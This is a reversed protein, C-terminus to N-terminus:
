EEYLSLEERLDQSCQEPCVSLGKGSPTPFVALSLKDRELGVLWKELFDKLTVANPEYRSWSGNALMAAYNSHPWFPVFVQGAGDGMTAWGDSEWLGWVEECDTVKKIFHRYRAAGDLRLM